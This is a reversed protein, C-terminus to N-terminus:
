ASAPMIESIAVSRSKGRDSRTKRVRLDGKPHCFIYAEADEGSLDRTKFIEAVEAYRAAKEEATM